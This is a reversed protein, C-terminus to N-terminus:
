SNKQPFQNRNPSVGYKSCLAVIDGPSTTTTRCVDAWGYHWLRLVTKLQRTTSCCVRFARESKHEVLPVIEFGMHFLFPIDSSSFYKSFEITFFEDEALPEGMSTIMKPAIKTIATCYERSRPEPCNLVAEVFCRPPAYGHCRIYHLILTPACYIVDGGPVLIEADGCTLIRGHYRFTLRKRSLGLGRMCRGLDCTHYGLSRGYSPYAVLTVLHDFFTNSTAGRTYPYGRVLYGVRTLGFRETLDPIYSLSRELAQLEQQSRRDADSKVSPLLVRQGDVNLSTRESTPEKQQPRHRWWPRMWWPRSFPMGSRWFLIEGPSFVTMCSKLLALVFVSRPLRKSRKECTITKM